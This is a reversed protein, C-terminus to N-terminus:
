ELSDGFYGTLITLQKDKMIPKVANAYARRMLGPAMPHDTAHIMYYMVERGSQRKYIPWARVSRYGLERFKQVFATAREVRAMPLVRRWDAGGWWLEVEKKSEEKQRSKLARDLWRNALFYFIEIKMGKKHRAIREVTSWRCEFTRQDLLCFTAQAEDIREATLIESVKENFDGSFIEITRKPEKPKRAPQASNLENLREVQKPDRDFLLFRRFWRPESELVLRASWMDPSKAYQPGAFGDIYTGHKTVYVFYRLYRQIFRAKSQTWLPREVPDFEPEAEAPVPTLEFLALNEEDTVAVAGKKKKKKGLPM